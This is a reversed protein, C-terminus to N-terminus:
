RGISIYDFGISKVTLPDYINRGDVIKNGKMLDKVKDLDISRFTNWETMIILADAGDM